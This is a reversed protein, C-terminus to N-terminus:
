LLAWVGLGSRQDPDPIRAMNSIDHCAVVAAGIQLWQGEVHRFGLEPRAVRHVKSRHAQGGGAVRAARIRRVLGLREDIEGIFEHAHQIVIMLRDPRPIRAQGGIRHSRNQAAHRQDAREVLAHEAGLALALGAEIHLARALLRNRHRRGERQIILIHAKRGIALLAQQDRTAPRHDIHHVLDIRVRRIAQLALLQRDHIRHAFGPEERDRAIQRRLIRLGHAPRHGARGLAVRADGRGPAALPRGGLAIEM